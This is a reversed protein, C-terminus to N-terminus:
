HTAPVVGTNIAQTEHTLIAAPTPVNTHSVSTHRGEDSKTKAAGDTSVLARPLSITVAHQTVVSYTPQVASPARQVFRPPARFVRCSRSRCMNARAVDSVRHQLRTEYWKCQKHHRLTYRITSPATKAAYVTLGQTGGRRAHSRKQDLRSQLRKPNQTQIMGRVCVQERSTRGFSQSISPDTDSRQNFFKLRQPQAVNDPGALICQCDRDVVVRNRNLRSM